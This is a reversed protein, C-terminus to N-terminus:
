VRSALGQIVPAVNDTLFRRTAAPDTQAAEALALIAALDLLQLGEGAAGLVDCAQLCRMAKIQAIEVAVAAIGATSAAALVAKADAIQRELASVGTELERAATGAVAGLDRTLAAEAAASIQLAKAFLADAYGTAVKEVGVAFAREQAALAAADREAVQVLAAADAEARAGVQTASAESAAFMAGATTATATIAGRVAADEVAIRAIADATADAVLVEARALGADVAQPIIVTSIRDVAVWALSALGVTTASLQRAQSDVWAILSSLAGLAGQAAPQLATLWSNIVSDVRQALAPGVVPLQNALGVLLPRIIMVGVLLAFLLAIAVVTVDVAALGAVM